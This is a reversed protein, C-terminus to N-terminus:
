QLGTKRFQAFMEDTLRWAASFLAVRSFFLVSVSVFGSSM